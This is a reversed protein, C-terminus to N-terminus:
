RKARTRRGAHAVEGQRGPAQLSARLVNAISSEKKSKKNLSVRKTLKKSSKERKGKKIAAKLQEVFTDKFQALNFKKVTLKNILQNALSLEATSMEPAKKPLQPVDAVPRIEYAYNLTTLLMTTEYPNIVCVYQKDRMVFTGIAVKHSKELARKFLFFSKEDKDEPGLYYHHELYIPAIEDADVFSVIDIRDTTEPKLEKIKEQTLIIYSGDPQKIGKVVDQWAVPKNCKKCWREYVIPMHCKKCLLKFGLVHEQIAAYLRVQISVLGFSISGKWIAKM